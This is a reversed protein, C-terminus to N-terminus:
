FKYVQEEFYGQEGGGGGKEGGRKRGGRECEGYNM